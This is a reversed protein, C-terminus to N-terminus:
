KIEEMTVTGSVRILKGTEKDSFYWGDSDSETLVKGRSTYEKIVVGGSWVTVKFASNFSTFQARESSTCAVEFLCALVIIGAVIYRKM